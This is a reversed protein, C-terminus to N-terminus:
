GVCYPCGGAQLRASNHTKLVNYKEALRGATNLLADIQRKSSNETSDHLYLNNEGQSRRDAQYHLGRLYRLQFPTLNRRAIQNRAIWIVVEDRSGFDM